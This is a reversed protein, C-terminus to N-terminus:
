EEAERMRSKCKPCRKLGQKSVINGCYSCKYVRELTSMYPFFNLVREKSEIEWVAENENFLGFM